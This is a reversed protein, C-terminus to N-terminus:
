EDAQIDTFEGRLADSLRQGDARRVLDVLERGFAGEGSEVDAAYTVRFPWHRPGWMQQGQHIWERTFAEEQQARDRIAPGDADTEHTDIGRLRHTSPGVVTRPEPMRYGVWTDGDVIRVVDALADLGHDPTTM